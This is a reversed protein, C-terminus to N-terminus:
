QSGPTACLREYVYNHEIIERVDSCILAQKDTLRGSCGGLRNITPEELYIPVMIACVSDNIVVRREESQLRACSTLMMLLTLGSLAAKM